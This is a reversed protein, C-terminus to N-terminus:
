LGSIIMFVSVWIEGSLVALHLIGHLGLDTGAACHVFVVAWALWARLGEIAAFKQM